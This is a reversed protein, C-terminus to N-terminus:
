PQRESPVLFIRPERRDADLLRVGNGSGGAIRFTANTDMAFLGTVIEGAPVDAVSGGTLDIIRVVAADDPAAFLRKGDRSFLLRHRGSVRTDSQLLRMAGSGGAMWLESTSLAVAAEGSSGPRFAASEIAAPASIVNSDQGAAALVAHQGEALLVRGEDSVALLNQERTLDIRGSSYEDPLGRLVVLVGAERYAFAAAKGSPSIVIVDPSAPAINVDEERASSRNLRAIRVEGNSRSVLVAYDHAPSIAANLEGDGFDLPDGVLAAGPIGQIPRLRNEEFIYGLAPAGIQSQAAADRAFLIGAALIGVRLAPTSFRQVRM